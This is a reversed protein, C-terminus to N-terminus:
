KGNDGSILLYTEAHACAMSCFHYVDRQGLVGTPGLRELKLWGLYVHDAPTTLKCGVNDCQLLNM